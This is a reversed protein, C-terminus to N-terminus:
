FVLPLPQASLKERRQGLPGAFEYVNIELWAQWPLQQKQEEAAEMRRGEAAEAKGDPLLMM